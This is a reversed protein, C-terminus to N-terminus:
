IFKKVLRKPKEGESNVENLKRRYAQIFEYSEYLNNLKLIRVLVEKLDTREFGECKIYQYNVATKALIMFDIPTLLYKKLFNNEFFDSSLKM